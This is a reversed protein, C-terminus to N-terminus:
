QPVDLEIQSYKDVVEWDLRDPLQTVKMIYMDGIGLGDSRFSYVGAPTDVKIKKLAEIIKASSTDGGTAKVAEIYMTLAVDASVGEATPVAHTKKMFNQVYDKNIPTDFLSSYPGSGVIGISKEGIANLSRPFLVTCNPIVLPMTKGAAYYQSVFRQALVPTFWFFVADAQKMAAINPSFDLTGPRIPQTQVIKGGRKRFADTVGGVFEQGSVFDEVAVTATRYGLKDYAYLGLYYGLGKLTGFPLFINGGGFKLVGMSKQMFLINPTKSASLFNAVAPAAGGHVPGLVVDVKDQEVLKRAKEVSMTPNTGDDEIILELKRGAVQGGAQELRYELAAKLGPGLMANEGTMHLIAGVKIPSKPAAAVDFVLGQGLALVVSLLVFLNKKM